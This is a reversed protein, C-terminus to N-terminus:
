LRLSAAARGACDPYHRSQPLRRRARPARRRGRGAPVASLLVQLRERDRCRHHVVVRRPCLCPVVRAVFVLYSVLELVLPSSLRMPSREGQLVLRLTLPTMVAIGIADGVLLPVFTVVLDGFDIGADALLLLSLFLAVLIAGSIGVMLLVVVDRLRNLRTDILFYGRLVSAMAGYGVAIIAAIGLIVPWELSINLVLIEALVVCAFLVLAYRAGGAIMLAFVVGLGPNWPTIPLGKYEHIFSVWELVIYAALFIGATIVMALDFGFPAPSAFLGRAKPLLGEAHGIPKM